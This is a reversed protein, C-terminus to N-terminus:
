SNSSKKSESINQPTEDAAVPEIERPEPQDALYNEIFMPIWSFIRQVDLRVEGTYPRRWIRATKARRLGKGAAGPADSKQSGHESV